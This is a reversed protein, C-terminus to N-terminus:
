WKCRRASKYQSRVFSSGAGVSKSGDLEVVDVGLIVVVAFWVVDVEIVIVSAVVVAELLDVPVVVDVELMVVPVIGGLAVEEV